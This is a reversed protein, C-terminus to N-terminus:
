LAAREVERSLTETVWLQALERKRTRCSKMAEEGGSGQLSAKTRCSLLGRNESSRKTVSNGLHFEEEM